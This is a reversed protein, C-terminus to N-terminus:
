EVEILGKPTVFRKQWWTRREWEFAIAEDWCKECEYHESMGGVGPQDALDLEEVHSPCEWDILIAEEVPIHLLWKRRKIERAMVFHIWQGFDKGHLRGKFKVPAHRCKRTRKFKRHLDDVDIARDHTRTQIQAM